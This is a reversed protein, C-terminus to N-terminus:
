WYYYSLIKLVDGLLGLLLKGYYLGNLKRSRGSYCAKRTSRPSCIFDIKTQKISGNYM